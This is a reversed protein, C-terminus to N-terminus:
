VSLIILSVKLPRGETVVNFQEFRDRIEPEELGSLLRLVKLEAAGLDPAPPVGGGGTSILSEASKHRKRTARKGVEPSPTLRAQM